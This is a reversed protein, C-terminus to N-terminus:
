NFEEKLTPHQTETLPNDASQPVYTCFCPSLCGAEVIPSRSSEGKLLNNCPTIGSFSSFGGCTTFTLGCPLPTMGQPKSSEGQNLAVPTQAIPFGFSPYMMLQSKRYPSGFGINTGGLNLPSLSQSNKPSQNEDVPEFALKDFGGYDSGGPIAPIKPSLEEKPPILLVQDKSSPEPSALDELSLLFTM